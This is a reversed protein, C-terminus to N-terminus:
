ELDSEISSELWKSSERRLILYFLTNFDRIDTLLEPEERTVCFWTM